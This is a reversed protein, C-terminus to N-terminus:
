SVAIIITQLPLAQGQGSTNFALPCPHAEAGVFDRAQKFHHLCFASSNKLRFMKPTTM